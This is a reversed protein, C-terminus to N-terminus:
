SYLKKKLDDKRKKEEENPKSKYKYNLVFFGVFVFMLFLFVNFLNNDYETKEVHVKKLTEKLFYKTGPEVLSPKDM